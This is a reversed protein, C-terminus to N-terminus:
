GGVGEVSGCSSSNARDLPFSVMKLEAFILAHASAECRARTAAIECFFFEVFVLPAGGTGTSFQGAILYFYFHIGTSLM